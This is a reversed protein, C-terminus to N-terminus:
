EKIIKVKRKPKQTVQKEINTEEKIEELKEVKTTTEDQPKIDNVILPEQKHFPSTGYRRVNFGLQLISNIESGVDDIDNLDCYQKIALYLFENIYIDM